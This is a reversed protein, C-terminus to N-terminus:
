EIAVYVKPDKLIRSDLEYLKKMVKQTKTPPMEM